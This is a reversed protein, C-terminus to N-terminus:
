MEGKSLKKLHQRAKLNVDSWYTEPRTHWNSSMLWPRDSQYFSNQPNHFLVSLLVEMWYGSVDKSHFSLFVAEGPVSLFPSRKKLFGVFNVLARYLCLGSIGIYRM